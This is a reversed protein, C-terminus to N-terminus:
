LFFLRFLYASSKTCLDQTLRQKRYSLAQRKLKVFLVKGLRSQAQKELKAVTFVQEASGKEQAPVCRAKASQAKACGHKQM